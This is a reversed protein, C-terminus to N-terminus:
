RHRTKGQKHAFGHATHLAWGAIGEPAILEVLPMIESSREGEVLKIHTADAPFQGFLPDITVWQGNIYSQAWTHYLFGKYESSYVIGNLIRTPIELSRAFATYLMTHGQCEAKKQSLM